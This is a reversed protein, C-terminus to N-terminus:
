PMPYIGASRSQDIPIRTIQAANYKALGSDAAQMAADFTARGVLASDIFLYRQSGHAVRVGVYAHGPVLVVIPDMGLNEFLSAFMVAGDICNASSNDISERPMRVRQSIAVNGGFTVSSKVYSLGQKKLADYIARAQSYTAQEQEAEGKWHEYGPLRRGPTFNKARALIKEVHLEHPTVWAAIFPAYKFKSGWYMDDASRLRVPVTADHITKGRGDSIEVVATAAMIERNRYLRPLFTPAFKFARSQGAAVEAMQIEQDSWGAIRVAIRQRINIDASNHVTVTVTGWERERPLQMSAYNAFVPFVDGDIGAVIDYTPQTKRTPAAAAVKTDPRDASVDASYAGPLTCVAAIALAYLKRQSGSFIARQM